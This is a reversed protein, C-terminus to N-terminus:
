SPQTRPKVQEAHSIVLTKLEKNPRTNDPSCGSSYGAQHSIREDALPVAALVDDREAEGESLM